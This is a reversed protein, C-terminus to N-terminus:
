RRGPYGALGQAVLERAREGRARAGLLTTADVQLRHASSAGPRRPPCPCCSYREPHALVPTLGANLVSRPGRMVHDFVVLSPFEVLLYGRAASRSRKMRGATAALPQDLM